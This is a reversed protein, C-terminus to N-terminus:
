QIKRSSSRVTILSHLIASSKTNNSIKYQTEWSINRNWWWVFNTYNTWEKTYWTHNFQLTDNKIQLIRRGLPNTPCYEELPEVVASSNAISMEQDTVDPSSISRCLNTSMSSTIVISDILPLFLSEYLLFVNALAHGQSLMLSQPSDVMCQRQSGHKWGESFCM